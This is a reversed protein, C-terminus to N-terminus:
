LGFRSKLLKYNKQIESTTFNKNHYVKISHFIGLPATTGGAGWTMHGITKTSDGLTKTNLFSTSQILVGNIYFAATQTDTNRHLFLNYPTNPTSGPGTFRSVANSPYESIYADIGTNTNGYGFGWGPQGASRDNWFEGCSLIGRIYRTNLQTQTFWLDVAFSSSGPLTYPIALRPSTYNSSSPFNFGGGYSSTYTVSVPTNVIPARLRAPTIDTWSSTVGTYSIPNAADLYLVLGDTITKNGFHVAM